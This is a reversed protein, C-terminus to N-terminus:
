KSKESPPTPTPAQNTLPHSLAHTLSFFTQSLTFELAPLFTLLQLLVYYFSYFAAFVAACFFDIFCLLGSCEACLLAQYLVPRPMACHLSQIAAFYFVVCYFALLFFLLLLSACCFATFRQSVCCLAASDLSVFCFV